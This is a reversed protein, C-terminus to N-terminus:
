KAQWKIKGWLIDYAIYMWCKNLIYTLTIATVKQWEGTFVWSITGLVLNGFIIEYMIMKMYPKFPSHRLWSAWLWFREHGYYIFVFSAHHCLTILTTTVWERTYIYTILGLILIGLVRWAVSKAMSSTHTM